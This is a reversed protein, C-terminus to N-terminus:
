PSRNSSYHIDVSGGEILPSNTNTPFEGQGGMTCNTSSVPIDPNARLFADRLGRARELSLEAGFLHTETSDSWGVFIMKSQGNALDQYQLDDIKSAIAKHLSIAIGHNVAVDNRVNFKVTTVLQLNTFQSQLPENKEVEGYEALSDESAKRAVDATSDNTRGDVVQQSNSIDGCGLIFSCTTIM